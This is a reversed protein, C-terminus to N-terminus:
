VKFSNELRQWIFLIWHQLAKKSFETVTVNALVLVFISYILNVAQNEQFGWMPFTSGWLTAWLVKTLILWFTSELAATMGNDKEAPSVSWIRSTLALTATLFQGFRFLSNLNLKLNGRNRQRGSHLIIFEVISAPM